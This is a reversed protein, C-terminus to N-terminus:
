AYFNVNQPALLNATTQTAARPHELNHRVNNCAAVRAGIGGAPFFSMSPVEGQSWIPAFKSARKWLLGCAGSSVASTLLFLRTVFGRQLTLVGQKRGGPALPSIMAGLRSAVAQRWLRKDQKPVTHRPRQAMASQNAFDLDFYRMRAPLCSQRTLRHRAPNLLLLTGGRPPAVSTVAFVLSIGVDDQSRVRTTAARDLKLPSGLGGLLTTLRATYAQSHLRPM